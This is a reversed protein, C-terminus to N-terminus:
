NKVYNDIRDRFTGVKIDKEWLVLSKFGNRKYVKWRFYDKKKVLPLNHWYDGFVEIVKKGYVFDPNFQEIMFQGDGTYKFTNPHMKNLYIEVIKEPLTKRHNSEISKSIAKQRTVLDFLHGKPFANIPKSGKKFWTKKIKGIVVPRKMAEKTTQKILEKQKETRRKGFNKSNVGSLKESRYVDHCEHSCYRVRQLSPYVSFETKCIPCQKKIKNVRTM